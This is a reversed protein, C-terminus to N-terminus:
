SAAKHNPVEALSMERGIELGQGLFRNATPRTKQYWLPDIMLVTVETYCSSNSKPEYIKWVVIKKSVPKTQKKRELDDANSQKSSYKTALLNGDLIVPFRCCYVFTTM